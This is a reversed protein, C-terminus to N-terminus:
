NDAEDSLVSEAGQIAWVPSEPDALVAKALQVQRIRVAARGGSRFLKERLMLEDVTEETTMERHPYFILDSSFSGPFCRGLYNTLFSALEPRTLFLDILDILEERTFDSIPSPQGRALEDAYNKASTAGYFEFFADPGYSTGGALRNITAILDDCEERRDLRDAVEDILRALEDVRKEDQPQLLAELRPTM